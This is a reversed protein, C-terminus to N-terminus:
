VKRATILALTGVITLFNETVVVDAFGVERLMPPLRGDIHDAVQELRRAFLAIGRAIFNHPEGFDVIHFEGGVNLVRRVEAFARRKNETTLHHLMLSSLVRDFSGDPYPLQFALAEDFVIAVGARAAKARALALVTADGDLGVVAARSHAQKLMITLTGTGCGLDLVRQGDAIRAQQILARKFTQERMIWRQFPDYLPTLWAFRFAPIYRDRNNM